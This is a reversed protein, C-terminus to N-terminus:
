KSGDLLEEYDKGMVEDVPKGEHIADVMSSERAVITEAKDLVDSAMAAPIFVVGTGDAIVFDGPEVIVEGIEVRVDVGAEHIRGRASRATTSRSFVPLGVERCEDIDRVPGEVIIGRIKRLKAAHTLMGGWAAASIGTKQEVVIVDTEGSEMISRVGLHTTSGGPSAGAELKMTRVRGAIREKTSRRVLGDVTGSVGLSDLADSVACADLSILRDLLDTYNM